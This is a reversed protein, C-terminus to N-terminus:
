TPYHLHAQDELSHFAPCEALFQNSVLNLASGDGFPEQNTLQMHM